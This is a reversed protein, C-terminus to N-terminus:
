SGVERDTGIRLCDTGVMAAFTENAREDRKRRGDKDHEYEITGHRVCALEPVNSVAGRQKWGNGNTAM